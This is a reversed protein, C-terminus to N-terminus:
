GWRCRVSGSCRSGSSSCGSRSSSSASSSSSCVVGLEAARRVPEAEGTLALVHPGIVVGASLYGLVSGLGLRSAIPVAVVAAALYVFVERLFPM